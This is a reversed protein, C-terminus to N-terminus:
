CMCANRVVFVRVTEYAKAERLRYVINTYLKTIAGALFTRNVLSVCTLDHGSLYACILEVIDLNLNEASVM